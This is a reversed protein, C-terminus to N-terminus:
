HVNCDYTSTGQSDSGYCHTWGNSPTPTHLPKHQKPRLNNSALGSGSRSLSSIPPHLQETGQFAAAHKKSLNSESSGNRVGLQTFSSHSAQGSM